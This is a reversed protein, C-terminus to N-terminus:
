FSFGVGLGLRGAPLPAIGVRVQRLQEMPVGSWREAPFFGSLGGLVGGVVGGAVAWTVMASEEASEDCHTSSQWSLCRLYYLGRLGFGDAAGLAAGGVGILFPHRRPRGRSVELRFVASLALTQRVTDQTAGGRRARLITVSDGSLAVLTGVQRYDKSEPVTLRVRQGPILLSAPATRSVAVACASLFLALALPAAVRSVHM